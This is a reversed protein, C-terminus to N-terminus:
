FPHSDHHILIIYMYSKMEFLYIKIIRFKLTTFHSIKQIFLKKVDCDISEFVNLRSYKANAQIRIRGTKKFQLVFMIFLKISNDYKTHKFRFHYRLLLSYDKEIKM